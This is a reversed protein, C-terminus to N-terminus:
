VVLRSDVTDGPWISGDDNVGLEHRDPDFLTLITNPSFTHRDTSLAYFAGAEGTFSFYDTESPRTVDRLRAPLDLDIPLATEFSDNPPVSGADPLTDTAADAVADPAADSGADVAGADAGAGHGADHAHGTAPKAAGGTDCGLAVLLVGTSVFRTSRGM